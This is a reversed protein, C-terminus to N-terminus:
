YLANEMDTNKITYPYVIFIRLVLGLLLVVIAAKILETKRRSKRKKRRM